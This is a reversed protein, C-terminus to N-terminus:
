VLLAKDLAGPRRSHKGHQGTSIPKKSSSFGHLQDARCAVQRREFGRHALAGIRDVDAKAIVGVGPMEGAQVHVVLLEVRSNGMDALVLALEIDRDVGIRM